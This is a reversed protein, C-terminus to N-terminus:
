VVSKRDTTEISQIANDYEDILKQLTNNRDKIKDLVTTPLNREVSFLIKKVDYIWESVNLTPMQKHLYKEWQQPTNVENMTVIGSNINLVTDCGSSTQDYVGISNTIKIISPQIHNKNFLIPLSSGEYQFGVVRVKPYMPFSIRTFAETISIIDRSSFRVMMGGNENKIITINGYDNRIHYATATYTSLDWLLYGHGFTSEGDDQQILSGPYGWKLTDNIGVNIQQKHNDGLLAISYGTMWELPYGTTITEGSRGSPLASQTITGHFMAVRHQINKPFSDPIPFLPLKDVCGVTNYERLTDKVSCMGIGVNEWVYHDTDKLYHIPFKYSKENYPTVIYEITDTYSPDEQRFDHNGAIVLIPVIQLMKNLWLFLVKAGETEMKGKNHFVDGCIVVLATGAIVCPLKKIDNYLTTFVQDYEIARSHVRDGNRIHLDALHIIHTIHSHVNASLIKM